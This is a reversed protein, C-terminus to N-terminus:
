EGWRREREMVRAEQLESLRKVTRQVELLILTISKM